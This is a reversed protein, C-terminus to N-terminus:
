ESFPLKLTQRDILPLSAKFVNEEISELFLPTM